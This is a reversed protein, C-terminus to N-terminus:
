NEYLNILSGCWECTHHGSREARSDIKTVPGGCHPCHEIMRWGRRDIDSSSEFDRSGAILVWEVGNYTYNSDTDECHVVDGIRGPTKIMDKFQTCGKFMFSSSPSHAWGEPVTSRNM